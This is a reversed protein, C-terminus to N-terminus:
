PVVGQDMIFEATMSWPQDTPSGDNKQPNMNSAFFQAPDALTLASDGSCAGAVPGGGGGTDCTVGAPTITRLGAQRLNIRPLYFQGTGAPLVTNESFDFRLPSTSGTYAQTVNIKISTVKGWLPYSDLATSNTWTRRSYSAFPINPPAGSFDVAQSNGSCNTCTWRLGQTPLNSKGSSLPVNPYGGALTTAVFVHTSNQTVGTVQFASVGFAANQGSASLNTGPSAWWPPDTKLTGSGTASASTINADFQTSNIVATVTVNCAGGCPSYVGSSSFAYGASLGSTTPVTLRAFGSGNDTSASVALSWPTSFVGGSVTYAVNAGIDFGPIAGKASNGFGTMTNTIVCNTCSASVPTGYAIPGIQLTPITANSITANKPTGGIGTSFTGGNVVLNDISSSQTHFRKLTVNNFVVTTTLKDMELDCNLGVYSTYTLIQNEGPWFCIAGTQTVDVLTVKRGTAKTANTGDIALGYIASEGGWFQGLAYITAPGGDDAEGASGSFYEPWTSLYSNALPTTFSIEGTSTCNATSAIQVFDFYNPNPPFGGGQLTFGTVAAWRGATFRACLTALSGSFSNTNIFVSTAGASVSNMRASCGTAENIGRQCIGGGAVTPGIAWGSAGSFSAGYGMLRSNKLGSLVNNTVVSGSTFMCQKGPPIYLEILQGNTNTTTARAFANWSNFAAVDNAVGNCTAATFLGAGADQGTCSGTTIDCTTAAPPLANYTQFIGFAALCPEISCALLILGLAFKRM